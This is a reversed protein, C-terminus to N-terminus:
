DANDKARRLIGTFEGTWRLYDLIYLELKSGINREAWKLTTQRYLLRQLEEASCGNSACWDELAATGNLVHRAQFELVVDEMIATVSQDSEGTLTRESLALAVAATIARQYTEKDRKAEELVRAEAPPHTLTPVEASARKLDEFFTTNEFVFAVRKPQPNANLFENMLQLMAMADDRKVDVKGLPLWQAFAAIESQRIGNQMASELIRDYTREGYFLRKAIKEMRMQSAESLVGAEAAKRFTARINVMAETSARYGHEEAAHLIAVEDDDELVRNLFDEFVMGVGVMGFATLEAARLAGMSAAGFVHIGQSMAWLIEKHWVAPVRQFYGDIIGISNPKHLAARYVDGQAVPPLVLAGPLGAEIEAASITPGAFVIARM